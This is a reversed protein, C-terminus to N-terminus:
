LLSLLIKTVTDRESVLLAKIERGTGFLKEELTKSSIDVLILLLRDAHRLAMKECSRFFREAGDNTLILLRSARQASPTGQKENIADIGKKETELIGDIKELGFVLQQFNLATKLAAEFSPSFPVHSVALTGKEWIPKQNRTLFVALEAHRPDAEVAKPLKITVL